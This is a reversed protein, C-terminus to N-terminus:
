LGMDIDLIDTFEEGIAAVKEGEAAIFGEVDDDAYVSICSLKYRASRVMAWPTLLGVSFIIAAANSFFLWCLPGASLSCNFRQTHLRTNNIVLNTITATLYAYAVILLPLALLGTALAAMGRVLADNANGATAPLGKGAYLILGLLAFVALAIGASKLYVGYFEATAANMVFHTTGYRRNDILFKERQRTFYPYALGLSLVVVLPLGFFLWLAPLYNGDFGCRINRYATNYLNFRMAKIVIWPLLAIFAVALVGHLLPAFTQTLMYVVFIAVVILRGKLIKLPDALYEFSSGLLLTNGYFYQRTRVKAWPSYIGLTLLSLSINVLWVKFFEGASGRFEIPHSNSNTTQDTM